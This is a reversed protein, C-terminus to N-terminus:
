LRVAQFFPRLQIGCCNCDIVLHRANMNEGLVNGRALYHLTRSRHDLLKQLVGEIGARAADLDLNFGASFLQDLDGIVTAAHDAIVSQEGELAM